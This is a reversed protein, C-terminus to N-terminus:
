ITFEALNLSQGAHSTHGTLLAEVEVHPPVRAFFALDESLWAGDRIESHFLGLREEGDQDVYALHTSVNRVAELAARNMAVLAFGAKAIPRLRAGSTLLRERTVIRPLDVNIVAAGGDAARLVCPAVVIRARGGVGVAELMDHLTSTTAEVDDDVSVWV